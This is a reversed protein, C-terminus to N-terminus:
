KVFTTASFGAASTAVLEFSTVSSGITLNGYQDVTVTNNTAASANVNKVTFVVGFLYNYKQADLGEYTIGYNDTTKVNALIFANPTANAEVITRTSNGVAVKTSTILDDKVNVTVTQLLSEGKNTEFLVNLTATGKKNGIVFGKKASADLGTVAVIPNSSTISKIVKPLAVTNGAADLAKVTVERALKSTSATEQTLVELTDNAGLGYTAKQVSATDVANILDAVTNVSYTLNDASTLSDIRKTVTNSVDTWEGTKISKQVVASIEAKDNAALNASAVFKHEQNFIDKVDSGSYDASLPFNAAPTSKNNWAKVEVGQVTTVHVRYSAVKNSGDTPTITANGAADVNKFTGLDKGYQDKVMFKFASTANAIIKTAPATVVTISDPIRVDSVTYTKSIFSNANVETISATVSVVSRPTNPIGTIKIKGKKDGATQLVAGASLHIRAANSAEVLEDVTLQVGNADYATLPIYADDDGAAIVDTLEGLELKTAVKGAKVAVKVTANGAQNYVSFTYEGNKDLSKNLSIKVDTIKDSNVDGAAGITFAPEYGNLIVRTNGQDTVDSAIVNGYQDYNVVDFTVYEGTSSLSDKGSSYKVPTVEMKTAFPATGLKFNKSVTVRSDNNFINVPIVSLGSTYPSPAPLLTDLELLLEGAENKTLKKFVDQNNGAYVTYNGASASAAEGYQNSAKLKVIVTDALAITDNAGLFDLKTVKEDEATFKGTATKIASAELGALTVTYEGAMLKSDTITLTASKKDDSWKTTTAVAVSGKTLALTAKTTDVDRDLTVTVTKVGTGKVEKVSAAAPKNSNQFAVDAAYSGVVLDARTAAKAGDTGLDVGNAKAVDLYGQYWPTTTKVDTAKGFGKVLLTALQGLTVNDKPAFSTDTMGDIIGAKKAAEIFPIAWAQSADTGDVDKFSSTTETGVTLNFIKAVLKAAEARTMNGEIDFATESKGDMFGKALLADIKALLAADKGALDAFDKSTKVAAQTTVATPTTEAAMAVSAFMSFALTATAIVKLSKKMVKKEGGQIDKLKKNLNSRHNNSSTESM